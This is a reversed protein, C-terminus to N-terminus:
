RSAALSIACRPAAPCCQHAPVCPAEAMPPLGKTRGRASYWPRGTPPRVISAGANLVLARMDRRSLPARAETRSRRGPRIEPHRRRGHSPTGMLPCPRSGATGTRCRAVRSPPTGSRRSCSAGTGARGFGASPGKPPSTATSGGRPPASPSTVLRRTTPRIGIGRGILSVTGPQPAAQPSKEPASREGPASDDGLPFPPPWDVSTAHGVGVARTGTASWSPAGPSM